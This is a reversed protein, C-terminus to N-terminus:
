EKLPGLGDIIDIWSEWVNYNKELCEQLGLAKCYLALRDDLLLLNRRAVRDREM